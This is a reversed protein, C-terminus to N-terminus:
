TKKMIWLWVFFLIICIGVEESHDSFFQSVQIIMNQWHWTEGLMTILEFLGVTFAAFTIFVIIAIKYHRLKTKQETPWNYVTNMLVCDLSDTLVMGCAFLIPLILILWPQLGHLTATATMGLLGVETATDFGLGFLFGVFYMKNPQDIKHFIHKEIFTFMGRSTISYQQKNELLSSLASLNMLATIWLFTVSVSTGVISGVNKFEDFAGHFLPFSFVIALTLLFVITSHGLAFYLGTMLSNKQESLFKRTINDIAVIHDADLGHRLGLSLSILGLTLLAINTGLFCFCFVCILILIILLNLIFKKYM